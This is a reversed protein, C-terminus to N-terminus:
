NTQFKPNIKPIIIDSTAQRYQTCIDDVPTSIFLVHSLNIEVSNNDCFPLWNAIALGDRSPILVYPSVLLIKDHDSMDKIKAIVIETTILKVLKVDELM